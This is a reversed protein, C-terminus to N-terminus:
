PASPLTELLDDICAYSQDFYGQEYAPDLMGGLRVQTGEVTISGSLNNTQDLLAYSGNFADIQADDIQVIFTKADTTLTLEGPSISIGSLQSVPTAVDFTGPDSAREGVLPQVNASVTANDFRISRFPDNEGLRLEYLYANQLVASQINIEVSQPAVPVISDFIYFASERIGRVTREADVTLGGQLYRRKGFCDEDVPDDGPQYQRGCGNISWKLHGLDGEDGVSEDPDIKVGFAEFGCDDNSNVQSAITGATMVLMRAVGEGLARTMDCEQEQAPIHLDPTCDYSQRFLVPDYTPDLSPPGDVPINFNEGDMTLTGALYNEREGRAGNQANLSSQEVQVDFRKGDTELTVAANSLALESMQAVPTTISCAGTKLDVGVRPELTGSLEGSRVTLKQDGDGTWVAFNTLETNLYIQAPDRSTPVIPELPDGSNIGRLTKTGTMRVTGQAFTPKGLCDRSLETPEAFSIECAQSVTYVGTAGRRGLEGTIQPSLLVPESSFGCQADSEMLKALTGFMQVTLQAAGQALPDVFTCEHDVPLQLSGCQWSEDYAQQEYGPMLGDDRPDTPLTFAEGDVQIMGRLENEQSGWTGSVASMDSAEIRASFQSAASRLVVDAPESWRLKDFRVIASVFACAGSLEADRAVRPTFSGELVGSKVQLGTGSESVNFDSFEELKLAITAPQDTVPIAPTEPDGTIRGSLTKTGSVVVKGGAYTQVGTCSENILTEPALDIECREVTQVVTGQSGVPADAQANAQVNLNSFGCETNSELLSGVRALLRVSLRASSQALQPALFDSCDYTTPQALGETCAFSSRHRAADYDPDLGDEGTLEFNQESNWVKVMGWLTNEADGRQGNVANLNSTNVEVDFDRSDTTVHVLSPEYVVDSLRADSTPISCAGNETDVALRPSLKGSIAGWIMELSNDSASSLVNFNEFQAHELEIVVGDPGLPIIPLEPDGTVVGLVKRTATVQLKGTTLTLTGNCDTKRLPEDLTAEIVCGEVRWIMEGELGPEVSATAGELVQESAFGCNTDNNVADVIAAFNRMTLRGVGKSVRGPALRECGFLLIVLVLCWRRM